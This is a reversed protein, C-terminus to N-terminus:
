KWMILRTKRTKKKENLILMGNFISQGNSVQEKLFNICFAILHEQAVM